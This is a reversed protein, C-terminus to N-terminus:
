GSISFSASGLVAGDESRVVCRYSGPDRAVVTRAYTRFSPRAPVTLHTGGRARSPEGEANEWSVLLTADAGTRNQARIFCYLPTGRSFSTATGVPEHDEVGTAIVVESVALRNTSQAYAVSAIASMALAFIGISQRIIKNKM